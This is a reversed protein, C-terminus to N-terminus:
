LTTGLDDERRYRGRGLYTVAEGTNQNCEFDANEVIKVMQHFYDGMIFSM